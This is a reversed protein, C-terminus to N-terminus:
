PSCFQGEFLIVNQNKDRIFYLFPHDARFEVNEPGGMAGGMGGFAAAAVTGKEDAEMYTKMYAEQLYLTKSADIGSLDATEDSFLEEIGLARLTSVLSYGAKTKFRPLSLEAMASKRESIVTKWVEENLKKRVDALGDTKKPLLLIMEYALEKYPLAVAQFDDNEYYALLESQNMFRVQKTTGDLLHFDGARTNFEKFPHAWKAEFYFAAALVFRTQSDMTGMPFANPIRNFTQYAAWENIKARASEPDNQIELVEVDTNFFTRLDNQYEPLLKSKWQTDAFFRGAHSVYSTELPLNLFERLKKFREKTASDFSELHLADLLEQQTKGNAGMALMALPLYVTMPAVSVNTEEDNQTSLANLVEFSFARQAETLSQVEVDQLEVDKVDEASVPFACLVFLTFLLKKM